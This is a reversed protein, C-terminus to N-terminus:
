SSMGSGTRWKGARQWGTGENNDRICFGGILRVLPGPTCASRGHDGLVDMLFEGLGSTTTLWDYLVDGAVALMVVTAEVIATLFEQPLM